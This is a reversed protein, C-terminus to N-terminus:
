IIGFALHQINLIASINLDYSVHGVKRIFIDRATGDALEHVDSIRCLLSSFAALRMVEKM